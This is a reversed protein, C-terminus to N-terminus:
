APEPPPAAVADCGGTRAALNQTRWVNVAVKTLPGNAPDAAWVPWNWNLRQNANALTPTVGPAQSPSPLLNVARRLIPSARM